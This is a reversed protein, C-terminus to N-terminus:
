TKRKISKKQVVGSVMAITASSGRSAPFGAPRNLSRCYKQRKLVVHRLLIFSTVISRRRLTLTAFPETVDHAFIFKAVTDKKLTFPSGIIWLFCAVLEYIQLFSAGMIPHCSLM